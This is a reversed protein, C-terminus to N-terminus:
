RRKLKVIIVGDWDGVTYKSVDEKGKIVEITDIDDPNLAKIEEHTVSKGNLIFLIRSLDLTQETEPLITTILVAGGRGYEGYINVVEESNVSLIDLQQIDTSALPLKQSKLEHTHRYPVGNLVILPTSSLEGKKKQEKIFDILVKKEKGTDTLLYPNATCSGLLLLLLMYCIQKNM